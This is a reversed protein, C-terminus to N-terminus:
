LLSVSLSVYATCVLSAVLFGYVTADAETPEEGGLVWFPAKGGGGGGGGAGAKFRSERLLGEFEEWVELKLARAEEATYRGVGQGHLAAGV